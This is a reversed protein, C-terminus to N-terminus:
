NERIESFLAAIYGHLVSELTPLITPALTNLRRPGLVYKGLYDAFGTKGGGFLM